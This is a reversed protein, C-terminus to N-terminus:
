TSGHSSGAVRHGGSYLNFGKSSTFGILTLGTETALQVALSTPASVAILMGVGALVAKQVLEFSARSSTLVARDALPLEDGVIAAGIVKDLANHRGVDERVVGVTGDSSVLAAAHVGGTRAFAQQRARLQDPLATIVDPHLVPGVPSPYRTAKQLAEISATGCVGCASSTVFARPESVRAAAAPDALSVDLVNYTNQGSEDVGDCYRIALVDARGAIIGEAHLLGHVLEIDAGPTRMTTSLATGAIRIELPEEGAVVDPRSVFAGERYRRVPTRVTVRSM